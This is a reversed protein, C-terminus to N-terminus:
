KQGSTSAQQRVPPYVAVVALYLGDTLADRRNYEANEIALQGRESAPLMKAKTVMAELRAKESEARKIVGNYFDRCADKDIQSDERSCASDRNTKLVKLGDVKVSVKKETGAIWLSWPDENQSQAVAPVSLLISAIIVALNLRM